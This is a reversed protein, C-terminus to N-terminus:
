QLPYTITVVTLCEVNCEYLDYGLETVKVERNELVAVSDIEIDDSIANVQVLSNMDDEDLFLKANVIKNSFVKSRIKIGNEGEEEKVNEEYSTVLPYYVNFTTGGSDYDLVKPVPDGYILDDYYNTAYIGSVVVRYYDEGLESIELERKEIIGNIGITLNGTNYDDVFDELDSSNFYLLSSSGTKKLERLTVDEGDTWKYTIKESPLNLALESFKSYYSTGNSVITVVNALAEPKNIITKGTRYVFSVKWNTTNAIQEPENFQFYTSTQMDVTHVLGNDIDEIEITDCSQMQSIKQLESDKITFELYWTDWRLHQVDHIVGNWTDTVIEPTLYWPVVKEEKYVEAADDWNVVESDINTWNQSDYYKISVNM